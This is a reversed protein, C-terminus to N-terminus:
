LKKTYYGSVKAKLNELTITQSPALSVGDDNGQTIVYLHLGDLNTIEQRYGDKMLGVLTVSIEEDKAMADLTLTGTESICNGEKDIAYLNIVVGSPLSSSAIAEINLEEITLDALDESWWGDITKVITSGEKLALPALFLYTGDMAEFEQGLPFPHDADEADVIPNVVQIDIKEPMGNNGEGNGSLINGLNNYDLRHLNDRYEEPILGVNGSKPALLFNQEAEGPAVYITPSPFNTVSTERYAVIDLDSQFGLGYEGIPNDVMLYIQPNDLILNTQPNNLFSPLNDLEIPTIKLGEGSYLLSGLISAAEIPTVDYNITFDIEQPVRALSVEDGSLQISAGNEITIESSLEFSGKNVNEDFKFADPYDALGIGTFFMEIDAKGDILSFPSFSILGTVADYNSSTRNGNVVSYEFKLGTPLQISVNSVEIDIGNDIQTQMELTMGLKVTPNFNITTMGRITGDIDTAEYDLNQQVRKKIDYVLSSSGRTGSLSVTRLAFVAETPDMDEPSATFKNAKIPDSNFEGSQEVAYFTTGDITYKQLKGDEKVTIIDNLYVPDLNIPITLNDVKFRSTTDIDALDYKDDICSTLLLTMVGVAMQFKKFNM